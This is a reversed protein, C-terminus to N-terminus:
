VAWGFVLWGFAEGGGGRVGELWEMGEECEGVAVGRRRRRERREEAREEDAWLALDRRAAGALAADEQARRRALVVREHDSIVREVVRRVVRESLPAEGRRRKAERMALTRQWAARLRREM